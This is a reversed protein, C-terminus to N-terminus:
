IKAALLLSPEKDHCARKMLRELWDLLVLLSSPLFANALRLLRVSHEEQKVELVTGDKFEWKVVDTEPSTGKVFESGKLKSWFVHFDQLKIFHWVQSLHAPIVASETISTSTPIATSM